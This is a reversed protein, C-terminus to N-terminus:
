HHGGTRGNVPDQDFRGLDLASGKYSVLNARIAVGVDRASKGGARMGAKVFVIQLPGAFGAAFGAMAGPALMDGGAAPAASEDDVRPSVRRNAKLTVELDVSLQIQRIMMGDDFSPHITDLAMVRVSVINELRRRSQGHRLQIFRAGRAVPILAAGKDKFMLGHAFAAGDAVCRVRRDAWLEQELPIVVKTQPAMRLHLQPIARSRGHDSFEVVGAKDSPSGAPACAAM